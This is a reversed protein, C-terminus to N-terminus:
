GKLLRAENEAFKYEGCILDRDKIYYALTLVDDEFRNTVSQLSNNEQM